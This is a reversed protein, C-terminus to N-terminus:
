CIMVYIYVNYISADLCCLSRENGCGVKTYEDHVIYMCLFSQRSPKNKLHLTNEHFAVCIVHHRRRRNSMCLCM